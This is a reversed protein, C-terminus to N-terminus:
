LVNNFMRWCILQSSESAIKIWHKLLYHQYHTKNSLASAASSMAHTAVSHYLLLKLVNPENGSKGQVLTTASGALLRREDRYPIYSLEQAGTNARLADVCPLATTL